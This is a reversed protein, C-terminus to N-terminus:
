VPEQGPAQADLGPGKINTLKKSGEYLEYELLRCEIKSNFLPIRRKTKLGVKKALDPNGTFIYGKYGKCTQKFYDGIGRYTEGLAEAEGLRKGYEPNIVVVGGGDPVPTEAYECVGFEILQDVGATTANHRAAKIAEPSIDTAIIRASLSKKGMTRAKTRLARWSSENFGKVQMFGYNSRLLGPARQLAILAAEVALTGSGCMPNIFTGVGHWGTALVVAAALTEQLPAKFPIKRYGRRALPEGSTDLYVCCRENKWYLHIVVGRREPGSDPRRGCREVMRDVIADKLKVNAFRSDKIAPSDVASTVCIYGDEHIYDEWVMARVKKYMQDPDKAMFEELLFLVRHGTRIFLNYKMTDDITGETEVGAATVSPMPAGLSLLEGKLIPPIGKSCTILIKSTAM